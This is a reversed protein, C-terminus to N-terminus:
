RKQGEVTLILTTNKLRNNSPDVKSNVKNKSSGGLLITEKLRVKNM